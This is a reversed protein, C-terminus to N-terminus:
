VSPRSRQHRVVFDAVGPPLVRGYRQVGHELVEAMRALVEGRGDAAAEAFHSRLEDRDVPMARIRAEGAALEAHPVEDRCNACIEQGHAVFELRATPLDARGCRECPM